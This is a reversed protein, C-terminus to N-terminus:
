RGHAFSSAPYPPGRWQYTALAPPPILLARASQPLAFGCCIRRATTVLRTAVPSADSAPLFYNPPPPPSGDGVRDRHRKTEPSPPLAGEHTDGRGPRTGTGTFCPRRPLRPVTGPRSLGLDGPFAAASQPQRRHDSLLKVSTFFPSFYIRLLSLTWVGLAPARRERLPPGARRRWFCRAKAPRPRHEPARGSWPPTQTSAPAPAGPTSTCSGRKGRKSLHDELCM